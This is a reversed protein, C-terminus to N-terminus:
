NDTIKFLDINLCAVTEGESSKVKKLFEQITQVLNERLEDFHKESISFPATYMLEKDTLHDIKQLAKVRWNSHHRPLYSSEKGLHTYQTGIQYRNDTLKVFNCERLFELAKTIQSRPIKLKYVIEDITLGDGITCSLRIASYIWSSYFLSSEQETLKRETEIRKSLQLASKKLEAIRQSYHKKLQNSGARELRLLELFYEKEFQSFGLYETLDLAQEESFDRRGMMVQSVLTTHVGLHKSWAKLTGRSKPLHRVYNQLFVRYSYFEFLSNKSM